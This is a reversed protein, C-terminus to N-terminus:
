VGSRSHDRLISVLSILLQDRNPTFIFRDSALENYALEILDYSPRRMELLSEILEGLDKSSGREIRVRILSSLALQNKKNRQYAETLVMDAFEIGGADKFRKSVGILRGLRVNTDNLFLELNHRCNDTSGLGYFAVARFSHFVSRNQELWDPNERLLEETFEIVGAYDEAVLTAEIYLLAFNTVMFDEELAKEYIRRALKHNGTDAAFGAIELMVKESDGFQSILEQTERQERALEGTENFIYLLDIRPNPSLPSITQRIV